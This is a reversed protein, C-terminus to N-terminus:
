DNPAALPLEVTFTCGRGPASELSVRGEHAEVLRKVIALGLGIGATERRLESGRRFFSEFVRAQHEEPIGPGADTVEVRAVSKARGDPPGAPDPGDEAVIRVSGGAPSHKLANDLLNTFVQQLAQADARVVIPEEPIRTEISVESQEANPRLSRVTARIVDGLEVPVRRLSEPDRELRAHHLVNEILFGLRRTERLIHQVYERRRDEFGPPLDALEEAILGVAGLPARLEHTVSATFGAQMASYHRQREYARLTTIGALLICGAAAVILGSFIATRRRQAAMLLDPRILGMNIAAVGSAAAALREANDPLATLARGAIQVGAASHRPLPRPRVLSDVLPRLAEADRLLFWTGGSVEHVTLLADGEPREVWRPASLGELAPEAHVAITERAREHLKAVARWQEIRSGDTTEWEELLAGPLRWQILVRHCLADLWSEAHRRAEHDAEAMQLLGRYALVDWPLGTQGVNLPAAAAVAELHQRAEETRGLVLLMRALRFETATKHAPDRAQEVAQRWLRVADAHGDPTLEAAEADSWLAAIPEPLARPDFRGPRSAATFTFPYTINSSVLMADAHHTSAIRTVPDTSPPGPNRIFAEVDAVSPLPLTLLASEVLGALARAEAHASERAEHLAIVRDRRLSILGFATLLLVPMVLLGYFLPRTLRRPPPIDSM